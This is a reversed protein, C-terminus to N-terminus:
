PEILFFQILLFPKRSFSAHGQFLITEQHSDSMYYRVNGRSKWSSVLSIITVNQEMNSRPFTWTTLNMQVYLEKCPLFYNLYRKVYLVQCTLYSNM